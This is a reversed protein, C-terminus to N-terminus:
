GHLELMRDVWQFGAENEPADLKVVEVMDTSLRWESFGSVLFSKGVEPLDAVPQELVLEWFKKKTGDEELLARDIVRTQAANITYQSEPHIIRVFQGDSLYITDSETRAFFATM